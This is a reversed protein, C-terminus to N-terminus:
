GETEPRWCESIRQMLLEHNWIVAIPIKRERETLERKVTEGSEDEIVWTEIARGFRAGPRRFVRPMPPAPIHGVVTAIGQAVAVGAPYFSVYSDEFLTETISARQVMVAPCVSVADGYEPHKGVYLLYGFGGPLDIELVDGSRLRKAM